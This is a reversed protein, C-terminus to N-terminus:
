HKPLRNIFSRQLPPLRKAVASGDYIMDQAGRPKNALDGPSRKTAQPEEAARGLSRPERM